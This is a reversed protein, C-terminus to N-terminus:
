ASKQVRRRRRTHRATAPHHPKGNADLVPALHATLRDLQARLAAFEQRIQSEVDRSESPPFPRDVHPRGPSDLAPRAASSAPAVAVLATELHHLRDLVSQEYELEAFFASVTKGLGHIAKVFIEAAPGQNRNSLLKSITNQGRLGGAAAVKAQTLGRARAAALLAAYHNRMRPWALDTRDDRM